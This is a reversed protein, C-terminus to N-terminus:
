AQGPPRSRRAVPSETARFALTFLIIGCDDRVEILWEQGQWFAETHGALIETMREITHARAAPIDPLEMGALDPTFSGDTVDFHFQPM